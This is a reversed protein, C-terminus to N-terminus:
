STPPLTMTPSHHPSFYIEPLLNLAHNAVAVVGKSSPSSKM